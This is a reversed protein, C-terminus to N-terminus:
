KHWIKSVYKHESDFVRHHLFVSRPNSSCWTSYRITYCAFGWRAKGIGDRFRRAACGWKWMWLANNVDSFLRDCGLARNPEGLGKSCESAMHKNTQPLTKYQQVSTYKCIKTCAWNTNKHWKLRYLYFRHHMCALTTKPTASTHPSESASIRGRDTGRHWQTEGELCHRSQM